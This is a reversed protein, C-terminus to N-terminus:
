KLFATFAKSPGLIALVQPIFPRVDPTLHRPSHVLRLRISIHTNTDSLQKVLAPVAERLRPGFREATKYVAERHEADERSRQSEGRARRAAADASSEGPQRTQPTWPRRIEAGVLARVLADAESAPLDGLAEFLEDAEDKPLKHLRGLLAPIA